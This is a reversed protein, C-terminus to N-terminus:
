FDAETWEAETILFQRFTPNANAIDVMLAKVNYLNNKEAKFYRLMGPYKNIGTILADLHRQTKDFSASGDVLFGYVVYDFRVAGDGYGILNAVIAEEFLNDYLAIANEDGSQAFSGYARAKERLVVPIFDANVIYLRNREIYENGEALLQDISNRLAQQEVETLSESGEVLQKAQWRAIGFEGLGTVGFSRAFEYFNKYMTLGDESSFTNYPEGKLIAAKVTADSERSLVLPLRIAAYAKQGSPYEPNAIINKYEEIASFVDINELARARMYQVYSAEEGGQANLGAKDFESIAEDYRGLKSLGIARQFEPNYGQELVLRNIGTRTEAEPTVEKESVFVYVFGLVLALVVIIGLAILKILRNLM